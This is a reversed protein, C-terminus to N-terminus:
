RRGRFFPVRPVYSMRPVSPVRPVEPMSPIRQMSPMDPVSPAYRLPFKPIDKLNFYSLPDKFLPNSEKPSKMVELIDPKNIMDDILSDSKGVGPDYKYYNNIDLEPLSKLWSDHEIMFDKLIQDKNRGAEIPKGKINSGDNERNIKEEKNSRTPDERQKNENITDENDKDDNDHGSHGHQGEVRTDSNEEENKNIDEDKGHGDSFDVDSGSNENNNGGDSIAGTYNSYSTFNKNIVIKSYTPGSWVRDTEYLVGGSKTAVWFGFAWIIVGVIIGVASIVRSCKAFRSAKEPKGSKEVKRACSIAIYAIWGFIFGCFITVFASLATECSFSRFQTGEESELPPQGAVSEQGEICTHQASIVNLQPFEFESVSEESSKETQFFDDSPNVNGSSVECSIGDYVSAQVDIDVLSSSSSSEM